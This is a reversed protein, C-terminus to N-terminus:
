EGQHVPRSGALGDEPPVFRQTVSGPSQRAAPAVKGRLVVSSAVPPHTGASGDAEAPLTAMLRELRERGRGLRSKITGVACGIVEAAEEYSFGLGGVLVLVEQQEPPLVSLLSRLDNLDVVGDQEPRTQLTAALAEYNTTNERRHVIYASRQSNRMITFLWSKLRTGPTYQHLSQIARVLTDQVLDDADARQNTLSFAFARLAPLLELIEARIGGKPDTMDNADAM